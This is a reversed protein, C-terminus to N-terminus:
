WFDFGSHDRAC